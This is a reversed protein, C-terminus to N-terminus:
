IPMEEKGGEIYYLVGVRFEYAWQENHLKNPEICFKIFFIKIEAPNEYTAWHLNNTPMQM